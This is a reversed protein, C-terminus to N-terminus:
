TTETAFVECAMVCAYWGDESGDEFPLFTTQVSEVICNFATSNDGYGALGTGPNTGNVRVAEALARADARTKAYCTVTVGCFAAGGKGSLDNVKEEADVEVLIAPRSENNHWVDGDHLRDTRIRASDGTGVIATVASMAALATRIDSELSM